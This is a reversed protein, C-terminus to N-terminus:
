ATIGFGNTGHVCAALYLKRAREENICRVVNQPDDETWVEWAYPGFTDRTIPNTVLKRILEAKRTGDLNKCCAVVACDPDNASIKVAFLRRFYEEHALKGCVTRNGTTEDTDITSGDSFTETKTAYRQCHERSGAALMTGAENTLIFWNPKSEHPTITKM